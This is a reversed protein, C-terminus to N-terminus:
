RATIREKIDMATNKDLHGLIVDSLEGAIRSREQEQM